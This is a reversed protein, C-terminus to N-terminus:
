PDLQSVPHSTDCTVRRYGRKFPANRGSGFRLRDPGRWGLSRMVHRLRKTHHDSQRETPIELLALLETTTIREEPGDKGEFVGGTVAALKDFWPEEIMRAEQAEGAAPWLEEPLIVSYGEAELEAAEALLQERDREFSSIDIKGTLVPWFRRNGTRSQLYNTENTTGFIICRRPQELVCRGYAPRAREFTRSAFAKVHEVEARKLGSLDPIEVVLKGRMLEQQTRDDRGLITQDTFNEDSGALARLITSKGKGEPGEFVPITDFKCGPSRVRRVLAVLIIIGIHRHLENDEVGMYTTLWTALRRAGDWQLLDFYERVPDHSNELCMQICADFTNNRGPDFGFETEIFKRLVLCANDSLEGAHEAIRQGGILMRTHFADYRCEIGLAEIARRSNACTSKIKLTATREFQDPGHGNTQITLPQGHKARVRARVEAMHREIDTSM